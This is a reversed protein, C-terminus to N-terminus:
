QLESAIKLYTIKNIDVDICVVESKNNSLMVNFQLTIRVKKEKMNDEIIGIDFNSLEKELEDSVDGEYDTNIVVCCECDCNQCTLDDEMDGCSCENCCGCNYYQKNPSPETNDFWNIDVDDEVDSNVDDLLLNKLTNKKVM